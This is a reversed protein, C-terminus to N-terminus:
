LPCDDEFLRDLVFLGDYDSQADELATKLMGATVMGYVIRGVDESSRVKWEALLDLAEAKDNFYWRAFKRLALCVDRATFHAQRDDQSSGPRAQSLGAQVFMVADVPYDISAAVQECRHRLAEFAASQKAAAEDLDESTPISDRVDAGCEPCRGRSTLGRLNYGCEVCPLDYDTPAVESM